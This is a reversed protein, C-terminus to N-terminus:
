TDGWDAEDVRPRKQERRNGLKYTRRVDDRNVHAMARVERRQGKTVHWWPCWRCRYSYANEYGDRKLRAVHEDASSQVLHAIKTCSRAPTPM